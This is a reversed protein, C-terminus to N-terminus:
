NVGKAGVMVVGEENADFDREMLQDVTWGQDKVNAQYCTRESCM